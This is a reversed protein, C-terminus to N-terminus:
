RPFVGYLERWNDYIADDDNDWDRAFVEESLLTWCDTPIDEELITNEMNRSFSSTRIHIRDSTAGSIFVRALNM